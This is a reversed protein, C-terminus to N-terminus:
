NNNDIGADRTAKALCDPCIGHSFQTDSHSSIYAEMQEWLGDDDRINKCYSCIPLVGKLTSIEDLADQLANRNKKLETYKSELKENAERLRLIMFRFFIPLIILSLLLGITLPVHNQWFPNMWIVFLYGFISLIQALILHKEGFRLGNGIIVWLYIAFYVNGMGGFVYMGVTIFGVDGLIAIVQRILMPKPFMRTHMFIGLTYITIFALLWNGLNLDPIISIIDVPAQNLWVIYAGTAIAYILRALSQSQEENVAELAETNRM